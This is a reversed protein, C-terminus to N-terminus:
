DWEPLAHSCLNDESLLEVRVYIKKDGQVYYASPYPPYTLGRLLGLLEGATYKRHLDIQELERMEQRLHPHSRPEGQPFRETTGARIDPWVEEFLAILERTLRQHLTGGTDLSKIVLQKKAIIDGTDTGSDVHHITVGVPSGDLFPYVNPHWGRNYPLYAPHLNICGLRPIDFLMPKLIYGFFACIGIDPTLARIHELTDGNRLDDALFVSETPMCVTDLIEQRFKSDHTPHVVLGVIHENYERLWRAIQWGGWNNAMLLIRM